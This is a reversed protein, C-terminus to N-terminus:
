PRGKPPLGGTAFAGQEEGRDLFAVLREAVGRGCRQQADRLLEHLLAGEDALWAEFPLPPEPGQFTCDGSWLREPLAMAGRGAAAQAAPVVQVHLWLKM